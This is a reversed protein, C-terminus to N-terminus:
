GAPPDAVAVTALVALGAGRNSWAHRGGHVVMTDGVRLVVEGGDYVLALEGRLVVNFDTTATEHWFRAPNGADDRPLADDPPFRVVRFLTGGPEPAIAVDRDATDIGPAAATTDTYWLDVLALEPPYGPVGHVHPSPGDFWVAVKGTADAGLVVRRVDDDM